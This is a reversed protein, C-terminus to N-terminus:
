IDLRKQIHRPLISDLPGGLDRRVGQLAAYDQFREKLRPALAILQEFQASKAASELSLTVELKQAEDTLQRVIDHHRQLVDQKQCSRINWARNVLFMTTGGAAVMVGGVGLGVPLLVAQGIGVSVMASAFGGIVGLVVGMVSVGMVTNSIKNLRLVRPTYSISQQAAEQQLLLTRCALLRAAPDNEALAEQARQAFADAREVEVYQVNVPRLAPVSSM